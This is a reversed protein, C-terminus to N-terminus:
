DVASVDEKEGRARLEKYGRAFVARAVEPDGEEGEIENGDEDEGGGLTSVEMLAYSIYVKVHATRELLREYLSRTREREGEGAEFDIYAQRRDTHSRRKKLVRQVSRGFLRPCISHRRSLWSSSPESVSLTKSLVRSRHGSSGRQASHLITSSRDAGMTNGTLTLRVTL